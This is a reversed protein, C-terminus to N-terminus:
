VWEPLTGIGNYPVFRVSRAPAAGPVQLSAPCADVILAPDINVGALRRAEDEFPGATPDVGWRHLAVPIGLLAGLVRGALSLPDTVILDPRWRKALRLYGDVHIQAHEFWTQAVRQWVARGADSDREYYAISPFMHGAMGLRLREIPRDPESMEAVNLGAARVAASTEESAMVLVQHGATRLAWCMPVMSGIHATPPLPIALVKM